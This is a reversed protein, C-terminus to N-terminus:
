QMKSTFCKSNTAKWSSNYRLHLLTWASWTRCTAMDRWVSCQKSLAQLSLYHPSGQTNLAILLTTSEWLTMYLCLRWGMFFVLSILLLGSMDTRLFSELSNWTKNKKMSNCKTTSSFRDLKKPWRLSRAM